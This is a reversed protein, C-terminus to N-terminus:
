KHRNFIQLYKIEQELMQAPVEQATEQVVKFLNAKLMWGIVPCM